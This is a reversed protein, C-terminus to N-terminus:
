HSFIDVEGYGALDMEARTRLFQFAAEALHVRGERALMM